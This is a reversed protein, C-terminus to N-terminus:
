LLQLATTEAQDLPFFAQLLMCTTYLFIVMAQQQVTGKNTVVMQQVTMIQTGQSAQQGSLSLYILSKAIFGIQM